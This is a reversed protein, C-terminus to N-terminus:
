FKWTGQLVFRGLNPLLTSSPTALVDLQETVSNYSALDKRASFDAHIPVHWFMGIDAHKGLQFGLGGQYQMQWRPLESTAVQSARKQTLDSALSLVQNNSYNQQASQGMFTYDVALGSYLRLPRVPQWWLMVPMEVQHLKRLPIYVYGEALSENVYPSNPAGLGSAGTYLGTANVYSYEEVAVVPQSNTSPRYRTYMASARIGWKRAFQWDTSLGASLGNISAFAETSAAATVGFSWKSTHKDKQVKEVPIITEPAVPLVLGAKNQQLDVEAHQLRNLAMEETAAAVKLLHDAANGQVYSGTIILDTSGAHTNDAGPVIVSPLKQGKAVPQNAVSYPQKASATHQLAEESTLTTAEVQQTHINRDPRDQQSQVVPRQQTPPTTSPTPSPKSNWWAQSVWIALPLLLMGLWWWAVPRRKREVPMERDLTQQMSQWGKDALKKDQVERRM